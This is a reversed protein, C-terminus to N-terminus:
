LKLAIAAAAEAPTKLPIVPKVLPYNQTLQHILPSTIMDQALFLKGVLVLPMPVTQDMRRYIAEFAEILSNVTVKAAVRIDPQNAFQPKSLLTGLGSIYAIPSPNTYVNEVLQNFNNVGFHDFVISSLDTRLERGDYEKAVQKILSQGFAFGSGQDGILYGWDGASLISGDSAIGYCNSGTSAILCIGHDADSGSRFGIYGDNHVALKHCNLQARLMQTFQDIQEPTDLGAIGFCAAEFHDNNIKTAQIAQTLHAMLSDLDHNHPNTGSALGRGLILGQDDTIVAETKTGGGDLGLYLNTM